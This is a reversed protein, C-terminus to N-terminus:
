LRGQPALLLLTNPVYYQNIHFEINGGSGLDSHTQVTLAILSQVLTLAPCFLGQHWISLSLSKVVQFNASESSYTIKKKKEKKKM